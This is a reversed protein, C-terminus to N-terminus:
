PAQRPLARRGPQAGIAGMAILLPGWNRAGFGRSHPAWLLPCTVWIMWKGRGPLAQCLSMNDDLFLRRVSAEGRSRNAHCASWVLARNESRTIHEKHRLKGIHLVKWLSPEMREAPVESFNTITKIEDHTLKEAAAAFSEEKGLASSRARMIDETAFRWKERLRGQAGVEQSDFM